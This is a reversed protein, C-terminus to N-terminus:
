EKKDLKLEVEEQKETEEVGDVRELYFGQSLAGWNEQKFQIDKLLARAEEVKKTVIEFLQIHKESIAEFQIASELGTGSPNSLIFNLFELAQYGIIFKGTEKLKEKAATIEENLKLVGMWSNKTWLYTTLYYLVFDITGEAKNEECIEWQKTNFDNVAKEFEIRAAEIEEPSPKKPEQTETVGNTSPDLFDENKVIKMEAM